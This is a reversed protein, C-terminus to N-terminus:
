LGQLFFVSSESPKSYGTGIYSFFTGGRSFDVLLNMQNAIISGATMEHRTVEWSGKFVGNLMAEKWRAFFEVSVNQRFDFGIFGASFMPMLMAADKTIDFYQLQNNTSWTGAYHGAEELFIGKQTIWDFVPQVDKVAYISSDLWLIQNFGLKRVKEIAYIKFAYPNDEHSPSGVQEVDQYLFVTGDFHEQLSKELRQQGLLYSQKDKTVLNVIAKKIPPMENPNTWFPNTQPSAESIKPSYNYSHIIKDIHKETKAKKNAAKIWVGDENYSIDPYPIKKFREHWACVHFPPRLCDTYNGKGDNNHEVENGLGFTVIFESGDPNRCKSKFTIVDVEDFTAEYLADLNTISDDDDVMCFFKGTSINKLAERKAGISRKKNDTLMLVEIDKDGVDAIIKQYLNKAKLLRSHISPILISLQPQM